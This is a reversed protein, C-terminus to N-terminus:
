ILVVSLFLLWCRLFLWFLLRTVVNTWCGMTCIFARVFPPLGPFLMYGIVVVDTTLLLSFEAFPSYPPSLLEFPLFLLAMLTINGTNWLLQAFYRLWFLLLNVVLSSFCCCSVFMFSKLYDSTLYVSLTMMVVVDCCCYLCCIVLCLYNESCCIIRNSYCHIHIVIIRIVVIVMLCVIVVPAPPFVVVVYQRSKLMSLYCYAAFLSRTTSYCCWIQYPCYICWGLLVPWLLAHCCYWWFWWCSCSSCYVFLAICCHALTQICYHVQSTSWLLLGNVIVTPIINSNYIFYVIFM